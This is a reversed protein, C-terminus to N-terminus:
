LLAVGVARSSAANVVTRIADMVADVVVQLAVLTLEGAAFIVARTRDRQTALDDRAQEPTINGATLDESIEAITVLVGDLNPRILNEFDARVAAGQGRLSAVGASLGQTAATRLDDLIAM